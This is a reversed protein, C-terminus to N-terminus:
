STTVQKFLFEAAVEQGRLTSLDTLMTVTDRNTTAPLQFLLNSAVDEKLKIPPKVSATAMATQEITNLIFLSVATQESASLIDACDQLFTVFADVMRERDSPTAMTQSLKAMKAPRPVDDNDTATYLILSTAFANSLCRSLCRGQPDSFKKTSDTSHFLSQLTNTFLEELFEVPKTLILCTCIDEYLKAEEAKGSDLILKILSECFLGTGILTHTEHLKTLMQHDFILTNCPILNSLASKGPRNLGLSVQKNKTNAAQLDAELPASYKKLIPTWIAARTPNPHPRKFLNIIKATRARESAPMTKYQTCLWVMACICLAPRKNKFGECVKQLAETTFHRRLHAQTLEKVIMGVSWCYEDWQAMNAHPHYVSLIPEMMENLISQTYMKRCTIDTCKKRWVNFFADDLNKSVEIFISEGFVTEIYSMLLFSNNFLDARLEAYSDTTGPVCRAAFNNIRLLFSIFVGLTDTAALTTLLMQLDTSNLVTQLEQLIKEKHDEIPILTFTKLIDECRKMCILLKNVLNDPSTEKSDQHSAQWLKLLQDHQSSDLAKNVQCRTIFTTFSDCGLMTDLDHSPFQIVQQLASALVSRDGNQPKYKEDLKFLVAPLKIFMFATFTNLDFNKSRMMVNNSAFRYLDIFVQELPLNELKLWTDLLDAIKASPTSLYVLVQFQLFTHLSQSPIQGKPRDVQTFEPLTNLFRTILKMFEKLQTEFLGYFNHSTIKELQFSLLDRMQMQLTSVEEEGFLLKGIFNMDEYAKECILKKLCDQSKQIIHVCLEPDPTLLSLDKMCNYLAKYIEITNELLWFTARTITKCIQPPTSSTSKRLLVACTEIIHVASIYCKLKKGLSLKTICEIVSVPPFIQYLLGEKLHKAFQINQTSGLYTSHVLQEIFKQSGLVYPYEKRLDVIDLKERWLTQLATKIDTSAM